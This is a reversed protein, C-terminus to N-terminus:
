YAVNIERGAKAAEETFKRCPDRNGLWRGWLSKAVISLGATAVAAGGEIASSAPDLRLRPEAMTGGIRVFPNIFDGASIGIGRRASTDFSVDVKETTLDVSGKAFVNMKDTQTVAGPDVTMVGNTLNMFIAGCVFETYPDQTTFPNLRTLLQNFFDGFLTMAISNRVKGPRVVMDAYGNLNAILEHSSAGSASLNVAFDLLPFLELDEPSFDGLGFVVDRGDMSFTLQAMEAETTLNLSSIFSGKETDASWREMILHGNTLSADLDFKRLTARPLIVTQADVNLLLNIRNLAEFPIPSDAILRIYDDRTEDVEPAAPETDASVVEPTLTQSTPEDPEDGSADNRPLMFQTLDVKKSDVDITVTAKNEVDLKFDGRLDSDGVRAMLGEIQVTNEDGELVADLEFSKDPLPRGDLFGFSSLSPGQAALVFNSARMDPPLDIEGHLDITSQDITVDLREIQVSDKSWAGKARVQFPVAAPKFRPTNPIMEDLDKGDMTLSFRGAFPLEDLLLSVDGRLRGRAASFNLRQIALSTETVSLEASLEFPSTSFELDGTFEAPLFEALNPGDLDLELDTGKLSGKTGITGSLALKNDGIATVVKDLRFGAPVSRVRGSLTFEGEPTPFDPFKHKVLGTFDPSNASVELNLGELSPLQGLMGSVKLEDNGDVIADLYGLRLGDRTALVHLSLDYQVAPFWDPLQAYEALVELDGVYRGKVDSDRVLPEYGLLGSFEATNEGLDFTSEHVLWGLEAIELDVSADFSAKFLGPLGLSRDVVSIDPGSAQIDLRTGLFDPPDTVTGSLAAQIEGITASAAVIEYGQETPRIEGTIEYPAALQEPGAPLRLLQRFQLFDPGRIGANLSAGDLKPFNPMVGDIRAYNTGARLAVERFSLAGASEEIQGTLTYADGPLGDIGLIAGTVSLDPGSAEIDLKLGEVTDLANLEASLDLLFEGLDGDINVKFLDGAPQMSAQLRVPGRTVERLGLGSALEAADGAEFLLEFEPKKPAVLNDIYGKGSLSAILGSAEIEFNVDRGVLLTTFPGISGTINLPRDRVFGSVVLDLIDEAGNVQKASDIRITLPTEFAPLDLTIAVNKLDANEILLPISELSKKDPDKSADSRGLNWNLKGEPSEEFILRGSEVTADRILIQGRTLAWIDLVAYAQEINLM